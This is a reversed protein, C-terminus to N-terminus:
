MKNFEPVLRPALANMWIFYPVSLAKEQGVHLHKLHSYLNTVLYRNLISTCILAHNPSKSISVFLDRHIEPDFMKRIQILELKSRARIQQATEDQGHEIYFYAPTEDMIAINMNGREVLQAMSDIQDFEPKQM